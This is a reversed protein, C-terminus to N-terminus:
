IAFRVLQPILKLINGLIGYSVSYFVLQLIKKLYELTISNLPLIITISEEWPCSLLNDANSVLSIIRICQDGQILHPFRGLKLYKNEDSYKQRLRLHNKDFYKLMSSVEFIVEDFFFLILINNQVPSYSSLYIDSCESNLCFIGILFHIVLM